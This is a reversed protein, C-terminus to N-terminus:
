RQQHHKVFPLIGVRVAFAMLAPPNTIIRREFDTAKAHVFPYLGQYPGLFHLITQELLPHPNRTVQPPPPATLKKHVSEM